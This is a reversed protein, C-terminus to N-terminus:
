LFANFTATDRGFTSIPACLPFDISPDISVCVDFISDKPFKSEPLYFTVSHNNTNPVWQTINGFPNTINILIKNISSPVNYNVTFKFSTTPPSFVYITGYDAVYVNDKSDVAIGIPFNYLSTALELISWETIFTGNSDFKQIRHNGIDAVYVNDKSDVAIDYPINFQGKATGESGWKTIFTGNSDFKQVRNNGSDAVYVNDKSDIAIGQAGNFQSFQGDITGSSGWKTIFTGHSDFKQVRNNGTDTVYVNDKSDIAIEEPIIFQGKTSGHSGWETIFTGNSDFKQVRNNGSDAVYVNDKSDIAIDTPFNFLGTVNEFDKELMHNNYGWKTIFTGNSDFKQIRHNGYDAVYVNGKSDMAIGIPTHFQGNGSGYFGWKTIFTGNPDFKQVYGHVSDVYVNDKSDIAIGDPIKFQGNESGFTGWQTLFSYNRIVKESTSSTNGNDALTYQPSPSVNNFADANSLLNAQQRINQAQNNNVSICETDIKSKLNLLTDKLPHMSCIQSFVNSLIPEKAFVKHEYANNVIMEVSLGLIFITTIAVLIMMIIMTNMKVMTEKLNLLDSSCV